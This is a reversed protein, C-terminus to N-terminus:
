DLYFSFSNSEGIDNKQFPVLHYSASVMAEVDNSKTYRVCQAVVQGFLDNQKRMAVGFFSPPLFCTSRFDIAVITNDPLKKFNGPHIDCPCLFLGDSADAVLDVRRDDPM